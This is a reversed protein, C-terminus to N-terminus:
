ARELMNAEVWGRSRHRGGAGAGAQWFEKYRRRGRQRRAACVRVVRVRLKVGVCTYEHIYVTYRLMYIRVGSRM